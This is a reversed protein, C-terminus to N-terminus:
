ISTCNLFIHRTQVTHKNADEPRLDDVPHQIRGDPNFVGVAGVDLTPGMAPYHHPPHPPHHHHHHLHIM